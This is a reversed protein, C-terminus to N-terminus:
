DAESAGSGAIGRAPRVDGGGDRQDLAQPHAGTRGGRRSVSEQRLGRLSGDRSQLRGRTGVGSGYSRRAGGDGDVGFRARASLRLRDVVAGRAVRRSAEPSVTSTDVYIQAGTLVQKLGGDSLAIDLLAKDDSVASVVFNCGRATEALTRAVEFGHSTALREKEASRCLAKVEFGAGRLRKCIPLGMKGLGIWGVKNAANTESM